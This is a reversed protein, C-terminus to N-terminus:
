EGFAQARAMMAPWALLGVSKSNLGPAPSFIWHNSRKELVVDVVQRRCDGPPAFKRAGPTGPAVPIIGGYPIIM